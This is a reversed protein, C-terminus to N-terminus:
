AQEAIATLPYGNQKAVQVVDYAKQKAIEEAYLAVVGRGTEHVTMTIRHAEEASKHFMKILVAMVFDMPTHNDNLFVVRWMTIPKVKIKTKTAVSTSTSM